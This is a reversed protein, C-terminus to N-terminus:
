LTVTQRGCVDDDDDLVEADVDVAVAAAGSLAVGESAADNGHLEADMHLVVSLIVVTVAVAANDVLLTQPVATPEDDDEEDDDDDEDEDDDDDEDDVEDTPEAPETSEPTCEALECVDGTTAPTPPTADVTGRDSVLPPSTVMVSRAFLVGAEAFMAFQLGSLPTAEAAAAEVVNNVM